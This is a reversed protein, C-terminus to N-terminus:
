KTFFGYNFDVNELEMITKTGDINTYDLKVFGLNENFYSKLKTIGLNSKAESEVVFCVIKGLKTIIETKETIQYQYINQNEGQWKLWRKDSWYDGINLKWNWKNGVVYPAKIYPFPNIELIKFFYVRPPHMWVNKKNEIVGTMENGLYQNNLMKYDYLIVTQNYDPFNQIFPSLGSKVKLTVQYVSQSDKKEINEFEWGHEGKKSLGARTMLFKNGQKDEYFYNFTFTRGVKYIKNNHNYRNEDKSTTDIKEATIGDNDTEFVEEKEKVQSQCSLITISSILFFYCIKKM